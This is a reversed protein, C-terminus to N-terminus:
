SDSESFGQEEVLADLAPCDFRGAEDLRFTFRSDDVSISCGSQLPVPKQLHQFLKLIKNLTRDTTQSKLIVIALVWDRNLVNVANVVVQVEEATPKNPDAFAGKALGHAYKTGSVAGAVGM